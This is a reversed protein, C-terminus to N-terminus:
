VGEQLRGVMRLHHGWERGDAPLSTDYQLPAWLEAQPALVDELSRPMVGIVTYCITM